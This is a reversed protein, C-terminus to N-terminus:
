RLQELRQGLDIKWMVLVGDFDLRLLRFRSSVSSESSDFACIIRIVFEFGSILDM